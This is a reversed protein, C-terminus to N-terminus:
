IMSQGLALLLMLRLRNETKIKPHIDVHPGSNVNASVISRSYITANTTTEITTGIDHDIDTNTNM